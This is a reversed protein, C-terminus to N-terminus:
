TLKNSTFIVLLHTTIEVKKNTKRGYIMNNM